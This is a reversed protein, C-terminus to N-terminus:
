VIRDVLAAVARIEDRIRISQQKTERVLLEVRSLADPASELQADFQNKRLAELHAEGTQLATVNGLTSPRKRTTKNM